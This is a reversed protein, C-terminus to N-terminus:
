NISMIIKKIILDFNMDPNEKIMPLLKTMYMLAQEKTISGNHELDISARIAMTLGPYRNREGRGGPLMYPQISNSDETTKKGLLRKFFSGSNKEKKGTSTTTSQNSKNPNDSVTNISSTKGKRGDPFFEDLIYGNEKLINKAEDLNMNIIKAIYNM